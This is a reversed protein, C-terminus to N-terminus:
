KRVLPALRFPIEIVADIDVPRGNRLAPEFVWKAMAEEASQDLRDDLHKLVRIAAVHGDRLIVAALRVNGEVRAAMEAPYYKPDVKRLPSPPNLAGNADRAPEREAFWILWSGTYSTINPMQVTMAYTVRGELSPDPASAVRVAEAHPGAISPRSANDHLAARLNGADTPAARATLVLGTQPTANHILLGPVSLMGATSDSGGARRPRPGASFRADRAGEPAPPPANLSPHLGVIAMSADAPSAAASLTPAEPLSSSFPSPKSGPKPPVFARPPPMPVSGLTAPAPEAPAVAASLTPPAPLVRPRRELPRGAPPAVFKRPPANMPRVSLPNGLGTLNRAMRVEPPAALVPTALAPKPAEPPPVFLKPKVPPAPRPAHFAILNPSVLDHKLEVKPAPQWIFQAARPAKLSGAVIEREEMKVEARLPKPVAAHMATPSVDPLKKERFNYWILKSAHPAIAQAYLSEPEERAPGSAVWALILGHALLSLVFPAPRLRAFM